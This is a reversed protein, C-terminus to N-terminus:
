ALNRACTERQNTLLYEAYHRFMCSEQSVSLPTLLANLRRLGAYVTLSKCRWKCKYCEYCRMFVIFRSNFMPARRVHLRRRSPAQAARSSTSVPRRLVIEAKVKKKKKQGGRRFVESLMALIVGNNSNCATEMHNVEEGGLVCVCARM